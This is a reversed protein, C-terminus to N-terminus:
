KKAPTPAISKVACTAGGSSFLLTTAAGNVVIIGNEGSKAPVHICNVANITILDGNTVGKSKPNKTTSVTATYSTVGLDTAASAQINTVSYATVAPNANAYIGFSTVAIALILFVNLLKM